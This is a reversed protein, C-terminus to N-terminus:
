LQTKWPPYNVYDSERVDLAIPTGKGITVTAQGDYLTLQAPGKVVMKAGVNSFGHGSLENYHVVFAWDWPVQPLDRFTFTVSSNHMVLYDRTWLEINRFIVMGAYAANGSLYPHWARFGIHGTKSAKLKLEGKFEHIFWNCDSEFDISVRRHEPEQLLCLLAAILLM